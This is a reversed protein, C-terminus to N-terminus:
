EFRQRFVSKTQVNLNKNAFYKKFKGQENLQIEFM